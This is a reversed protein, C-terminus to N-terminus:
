GEMVSSCISLYFLSLTTCIKTPLTLTTEQAGPNNYRRNHRHSCNHSSNLNCLVDRNSAFSSIAARNTTNLAEGVTLYTTATSGYYASSGAFTAIIQYTGPVEPTYAFGYNGNIDSTVDGIHVLNGNPDITDLSVPVGKANTPCRKDWSSTNWGHKCIQTPYQQLARSHLSYNM